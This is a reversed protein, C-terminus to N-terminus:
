NIESREREESPAGGVEDSPAGGVEDSPAGGVKDSSAGGVERLSEEQGGREFSRVADDSLVRFM